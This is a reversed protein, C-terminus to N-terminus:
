ALKKEFEESTVCEADYPDYRCEADPIKFTIVIRSYDISNFSGKIKLNSHDFCM